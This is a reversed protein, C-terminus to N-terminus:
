AREEGIQVSLRRAAGKVGRKAERAKQKRCLARLRSEWRSPLRPNEQKGDEILGLARERSIEGLICNIATSCLYHRCKFPRKDRPLTCGNKGLHPCEGLLAEDDELHRTLEAIEVWYECCAGCHLPCQADV